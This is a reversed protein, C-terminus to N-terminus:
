LKKTGVVNPYPTFGWRWFGCLFYSLIVGLTVFFTIWSGDTVVFMTIFTVIGILGSFSMWKEHAKSDFKLRKKGGILFLETLNAKCSPCLFGKNFGLNHGDIADKCPFKIHCNCCCYKMMAYLALSQPALVHALIRAFRTLGRTLTGAVSPLALLTKNPVNKHSWTYINTQFTM